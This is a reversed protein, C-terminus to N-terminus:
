SSHSLILELWWFIILQLPAWTIAVDSRGTLLPLCLGNREQILRKQSLVRRSFQIAVSGTLAPVLPVSSREKIGVELWFDERLILRRNMKSTLQNICYYFLWVWVSGFAFDERWSFCLIFFFRWINLHGTLICEPASNYGVNWGCQLISPGSVGSFLWFWNHLSPTNKNPWVSGVLVSFPKSFVTQACNHQFPHGKKLRILTHQWLILGDATVDDYRNATYWFFPWAQFGNNQTIGKVFAAWKDRFSHSTVKGVCSMKWHRQVLCWLNCVKKM